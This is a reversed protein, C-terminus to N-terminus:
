PVSGFKCGLLMNNIKDYYEAKWYHPDNINHFEVGEINSQLPTIFPKNLLIVTNSPFPWNGKWTEFITNGSALEQMLIKKLEGCFEDVIKKDVMYNWM